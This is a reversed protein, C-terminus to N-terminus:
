IIYICDSAEKKIMFQLIVQIGLFKSVERKIQKARFDKM